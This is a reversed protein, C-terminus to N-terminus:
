FQAHLRLALISVPGRDRNYAPNLVAQYDLTVDLRSRVRLKYYTEAICEPGARPLRGDGVLLGVGGADLYRKRAASIANVAAAMGWTDEARDWRSGGVSVGAAISRDIDTFDYAEVAGDAVSARAFVGFAEAVEQELNMAAGSRTRFSRVPATDVPSGTARAYAVAEDLRAMRAHTQFLTLALKGPRDMARYRREVEALLQYERLGPQIRDSNPADSTEFTGARLTWAGRYWEAAAGISYGWADAAYDFAGSEILSWNLFDSRPDHAYRNIDFIDPVAFKGATLVIREDAQVLAFQNPAAEAPRAEGGLNVTQRVFVRQPRFYPHDRGVKYAEGSAFGALGSTDDLGFGQDIEPNIWVEAGTWLRLGAYLTADFTEAGIGPSLSRPGAYPADFRTTSQQVFTSQGHLAARPMAEANAEAAAMGPDGARAPAGACLCAALAAAPLRARFLARVPM